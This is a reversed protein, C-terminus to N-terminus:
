TRNGRILDSGREAIMITPANTNGSTITPMVSADIVRLSAIGHVRLRPDVVAAPGTGMACTSTPHFLRFASDRLYREWGEASTVTAGPTREAVVYPRLVETGFIERVSACAAALAAVDAPDGLLEHRIVPPDEPDASRLSVEGRVRPHLLAAQVTVLPDTAVQRLGESRGGSRAMLRRLRGGPESAGAGDVESLGFATFILEANPAGSSPDPSGFAVAHCSTSTVAGRGRVVFNLGHRILRAPTLDQNLTRETVEFVLSAAPHEQLNRGVGPSDAAVAIGHRALVDRPGVGSLMLLKPSALAGASLVVEGRARAIRIGDASRYEVGVARSGELLIRRAVASTAVTLNARGRAPSLFADAASHRLGRVQNVQSIAVGLQGAANYDDLGLYGAEVAVSVFLDTMRHPVRMRAVRQPGAGGRYRSAGDEFREARRFSALVSGYDWGDCGQSAWGDFDAPNGRVWMMHNTSSSGGLVRGGSYPEVVDHRSADPEVPYLWNVDSGLKQILAPVKIALGTAEGGAEILLVTTRPDESLRDAVVCGASGGGVVVYDWTREAESPTTPM